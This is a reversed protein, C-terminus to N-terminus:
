LGTMANLPLQKESSKKCTWLLSTSRAMLLAWNAKFGLSALTWYMLVLSGSWKFWGLPHLVIWAVCTRVLFPKCSLIFDVKGFEGLALQVIELGAVLVYSGNSTELLGFLVASSQFLFMVLRPSFKPFRSWNMMSSKFPTSRSRSMGVKVLSPLTFLSFTWCSNVLTM